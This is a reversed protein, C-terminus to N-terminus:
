LWTRASAPPATFGATGRTAIAFGPLAFRRSTSLWPAASRGARAVLSVVLRGILLSANCGILSNKQNRKEGDATTRASSTAASHSHRRGPEIAARRKRRALAM